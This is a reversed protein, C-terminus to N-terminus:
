NLVFEMILLDRVYGPGTVVQVRRLMQSRLKILVTPDELDSVRVARLYGNLVDIIRPKIAEVDALHDPSVELQASFRLFRRGDTDPLNILLPDLPVFATPQLPPVTVEETSETGEHSGFLGMQVAFFGGAGGLVALAIGMILPMVSRKKGSTTAPQDATMAM